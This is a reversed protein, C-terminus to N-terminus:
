RAGGRPPAAPTAKPPAAPPAKGTPTVTAAPPAAPPQPQPAAVPAPVAAAPQTDPLPRPRTEAAILFRESNPTSGRTVTGRPTANQLLKSQEFIEILKSSSTTEGSIQVERTKGTTRVELQQVWTNDPLLRSIEEVYALVPWSGYKKALLFNYDNVQRELQDSLRSTAEAQTRAKEVLPQVMVVTERKRWLPIALAFLLLVIVAGVLSRQVVRDRSTEREGRQESPLLDLPQAAGAPDEQVSLGQVNAGLARLRELLADVVERRAVAVAVSLRGAAADRSVVRYDFYVDEARFPTLRDMEFALVQRLNEETAMPMAVRRVLAEGRGLRVRVRDRTEGARQLLGRFASRRRPEDFAALDVVTDPGAASRPEILTVEDGEIGVVPVDGGGGLAAFHERAFASIEGTWWEFFAATRARWDRNGRIASMDAAM